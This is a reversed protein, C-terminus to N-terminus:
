PVFNVYDFRLRPAFDLYVLTAVLVLNTIAELGIFREPAAGVMHPMVRQRWIRDTLLETDGRNGIVGLYFGDTRAQELLESLLREEAVDLGAGDPSSDIIFLVDGQVASPAGEIRVADPSDFGIETFLQPQWTMTEHLQGRVVRLDKTIPQEETPAFRHARLISDVIANFLLPELSVFRSRLPDFRHGLPRGRSAPGDIRMSRHALMGRLRDRDLRAGIPIHLTVSGQQTPLGAFGEPWRTDVLERVDGALFVDLSEVYVVLYAAEPHSYWYAVYGVPVSVAVSDGVQNASLTSAHKGKVQFWVRAQTATNEAFLHLGIDIGARDNPYHVEVGHGALLGKLKTMYMVEFADDDGMKPGAIHTVSSDQM